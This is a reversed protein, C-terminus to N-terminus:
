LIEIKSPPSTALASAILDCFYKYNGVLFCTNKYRDLWIKQEPRPKQTDDKKFEVMFFVGSPSLFSSDPIGKNGNKENKWCAFGNLRAFRRCNQELDKEIHKMNCKIKFM